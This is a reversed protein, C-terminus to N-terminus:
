NISNSNKHTMLGTVVLDSQESNGRGEKLEKDEGKGGEKILRQSFCSKCFYYPM